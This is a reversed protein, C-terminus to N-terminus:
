LGITMKKEYRARILRRTFGSEQVLQVSQPNNASAYAQVEELGTDRFRACTRLLMVKGLGERRRAPVVGIQSLFGSKQKVNCLVLGLHDTKEMLVVSLNPCFGTSAEIKEIWTEAYLGAPDGSETFSARYAEFFSPATKATWVKEVCNKPLFPREVENKLDRTYLFETLVPEYGYDLYLINAGENMAENQLVLTLEVDREAVSVARTEAWGLVVRGIGFDRYQPHVQCGLLICQRGKHAAEPQVWGVAVVQKSDVVVVANDIDTVAANSVDTPIQSILEVGDHVKCSKDLAQILYKDLPLFTRFALGEIEPFDYDLVRENYYIQGQRLM